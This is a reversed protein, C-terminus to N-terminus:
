RLSRSVASAQAFLAALNFGQRLGPVQFSLSPVFSPHNDRRIVKAEAEFSGPSSSGSVTTYESGEPHSTEHVDYSFAKREAISTAGWWALNASSYCAASLIEGVNSFYDTVFSFPILEWVTPVFDHARLGFSGRFTPADTAVEPRLAGYFSVKWKDKVMVRYSYQGWYTSLGDETDALQEDGNGRGSVRIQPRFKNVLTSLARASGEIDSILPKWGFTYEL